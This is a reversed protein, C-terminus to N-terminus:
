KKKKEKLGVEEKILANFKTVQTRERGRERGKFTYDNTKQVDLLRKKCPVVPQDVKEVM